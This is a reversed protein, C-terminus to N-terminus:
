SDMCESCASYGQFLASPAAGFCQREPCSCQASCSIPYLVVCLLTHLLRTGLSWRQCSTIRCSLQVSFRSIGTPELFIQLRQVASVQWIVDWIERSCRLRWARWTFCKILKYALSAPCALPIPASRSNSLWVEASPLAAGGWQWCMLWPEALGSFVTFFAPHMRSLM